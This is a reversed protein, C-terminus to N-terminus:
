LLTECAPLKTVRIFLPAQRGGGARARVTLVPPSRFFFISSCSKAWTTPRARSWTVGELIPPFDCAVVRGRSLSFLIPTFNPLPLPRLTPARVDTTSHSVSITERRKPQLRRRTESSAQKERTAVPVAQCRRRRRGPARSLATSRLGALEWCRGPPRPVAQARPRGQGGQGPRCAYGSSRLPSPRANGHMRSHHYCGSRFLVVICHRSDNRRPALPAERSPSIRM